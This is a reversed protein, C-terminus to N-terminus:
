ILLPIIVRALPIKRPLLPIKQDRSQHYNANSVTLTRHVKVHDVASYHLGNRLTTDM